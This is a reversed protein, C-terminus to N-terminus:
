YRVRMGRRTRWRMWMRRRKRIEGERGEMRALNRLLTTRMYKVM